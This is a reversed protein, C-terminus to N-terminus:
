PDSLDVTLLTDWAYALSQVVPLVFHIESGVNWSTDSFQHSVRECIEFHNHLM